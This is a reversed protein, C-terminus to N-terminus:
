QKEYLRAYCSWCNEQDPANTKGCKWCRIKGGGVVEPQYRHPDPARTSTARNAEPAIAARASVLDAKDDARFILQDFRVYQVKAGFLGSLCGPQVEINVDSLQFFEWGQSAYQLIVMELQQAVAAASLSGKAQGIFPVVKYQYGM